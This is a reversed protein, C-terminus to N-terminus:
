MPIRPIRASILCFLEHEITGGRASVTLTDSAGQGILTVVDGVSVDLGTVDIMCQDMCVRGVIPASVDGSRTHVVVLGDRYSRLFGDAYGIPLTALMRPTDSRYTSGYGVGEGPLLPHLHGVVTRLKLAPSLEAACEPLGAGYLPLGFRAGDLIYEPSFRFAAVGNCIHRMSLAVGRSRLASDVSIFREYQIRNLDRDFDESLDEDARAFHSFLGEAAIGPLCIAREIEDVAVAIEAESHACFGVRNMGTDLKVHVRVSVGAATACRSLTEAYEYSVLSQVIDYEKLLKAESPLTYGLVLVDPHKGVRGAIERVAIAEELSSVAFFDCGEALFAPVCIENSHCYGDAKVVAIMRANPNKKRMKGLLLRYNKRLAEVSVEAWAKNSTLVPLNSYIRDM